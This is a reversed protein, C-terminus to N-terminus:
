AEEMVIERTIKVYESLEEMQELEAIYKRLEPKLFLTKVIDLIRDQNKAQYFCKIANVYDEKLIAHEGKFNFQKRRRNQIYLYGIIMASSLVVSSGIFPIFPFLPSEVWPQWWPPSWPSWPTIGSWDPEEHVVISNNIIAQKFEQIWQWRTKTEDNFTYDGNKIASTYTMQSIDIGKDKLGLIEDEGNWTGLIINEISNYVATNFRKVMSCLIQGPAYNDQDVDVGIVYVDTRNELAEITGNGTTGAATYIIDYGNDFYKEGIYKGGERDNFINSQNPTYEVSLTIDENIYNLGHQYGALFRNILSINSAGLFGVRDTRTTMGAMAGVLFSGEHENFTISKVNPLDLFEDILVFKQDPYKRATINLAYSHFFGICIILDYGEQALSNQYIWTDEFTMPSRLTYNFQGEYTTNIAQLGSYSLDNVSGGGLGGLGLIIAISPVGNTPKTNVTNSHAGLIIIFTLFLLLLPKFSKM